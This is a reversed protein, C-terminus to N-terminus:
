QAGETEQEDNKKFLVDPKETESRTSIISPVTLTVESESDFILPDFKFDLKYTTTESDRGFSTLVVESFAAVPQSGEAETQYKTFKLTDAFKNVTSLSDASGAISMSGVAFDVNLDSITAENPTLQGIYAFLRSAVVKDAHLAPLSRLQNQITLIKNLDPVEQLQQSYREIDKSLNNLHGKQLVNIVVFLLVLVGLAVSATVVSILMVSRKARQAKIYELKVEPLLNFQIM